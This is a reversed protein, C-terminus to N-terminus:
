FAGRLQLGVQQPWTGSWNAEFRQFADAEAESKPRESAVVEHSTQSGIRVDYEGMFGAIGPLAESESGPALDETWPIVITEKPPTRNVRALRPAGVGAPFWLDVIRYRGPALNPFIALGEEFYTSAIPQPFEEEPLRVIFLVPEAGPNVGLARMGLTTVFVILGGPSATTTGSASASVSLGTVPFASDVASKINVQVALLSSEPYSRDLTACSTALIALIAAICFSGPRRRSSLTWAIRTQSRDRVRGSVRKSLIRAFM